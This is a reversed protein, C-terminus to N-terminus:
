EVIFTGRGMNMSCAINFTGSKDPVFEIINNGPGVLKRVGFAPIVVDRMCGTVSSLDVEMRVPVGRELTSPNLQYEYNKFSLEVNQVGAKSIDQTSSTQQTSQPQASTFNAAIFIAAILGVVGILAIHKIKMKKEGLHPLLNAGM